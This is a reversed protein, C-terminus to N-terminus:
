MADGVHGAIKISPQLTTAQNEWSAPCAHGPNETVFKLASLKRVLENASRWVPETHIEITKLIWEPSIIFTWRESNGSQENMIGFYRSLVTTRDAVMPIEFGKLLPEMEVWGRHSFVTDTSAVLLEVNDMSKITSYANNLDRLETPCVFTFDAPYFFLVLWKGEYDSIKKNIVEDSVPDYIELGFDEVKEEIKVLSMNEVMEERLLEANTLEM